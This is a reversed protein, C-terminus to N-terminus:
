PTTLCEDRDVYSSPEVRERRYPARRPGAVTNGVHWGGCHKCFYAHLRSGSRGARQRARKAARRSALRVKGGCSWANM